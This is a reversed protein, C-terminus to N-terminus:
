RSRPCRSYLYGDGCRSCVGPAESVPLDDLTIDPEAILVDIISNKSGHVKILSTIRAFLDSNNGCADKVYATQEAPIKLKVAAKFIAEENKNEDIM